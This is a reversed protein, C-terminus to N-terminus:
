NKLIKQVTEIFGGQQDKPDPTPNVKVKVASKKDSIKETKELDNELLALELSDDGFTKQMRQQRRLQKQENILTESMEIDEATKESNIQDVNKQLSGNGALLYSKESMETKVGYVDSTPIVIRDFEVGFRRFPPHLTTNYSVQFMNQPLANSPNNNRASEYFEGNPLYNQPGKEGFKSVDTYAYYNNGAPNNMTRLEDETPPQITTVEKSIQQVPARTTRIKEVEKGYKKEFVANYNDVQKSSSWTCSSVLLLLACLFEPLFKKLLKM